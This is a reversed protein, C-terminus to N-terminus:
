NCEQMFTQTPTIRSSSDSDEGSSISLATELSTGSAPGHVTTTATPTKTTKEPSSRNYTGDPDRQMPNHEDELITALPNPQKVTSDMNQTVAKTATHSPTAQSTVAAQEFSPKTFSLQHLDILVTNPHQFQSDNNNSKTILLPHM